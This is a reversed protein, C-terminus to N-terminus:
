RSTQPPYYLGTPAPVAGIATLSELKMKQLILPIASNIIGRKAFVESAQREPKTPDDWYSCISYTIYNDHEPHNMIFLVDEGGKVQAIPDASESFMFFNAMGPAPILDNVGHSDMKKALFPFAERLETYTQFLKQKPKALPKKLRKYAESLVSVNETELMQKNAALKMYNRATRPTIDTNSEIWSTFEGHKLEAKVQTLIEGLQYVKELTQRAAIEIASHLSNIQQILSKSIQM